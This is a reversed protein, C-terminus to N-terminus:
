KLISCVPSPGPPRNTSATGLRVTTCLRVAQLRATPCFAACPTDGTRSPPCPQGGAATEVRHYIESLPYVEGPQFRTALITAIMTQNKM